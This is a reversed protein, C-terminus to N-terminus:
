PRHQRFLEWGEKVDAMNAATGNEVKSIAAVIPIMVEPNFTDIPEDKKVKAASAVVKIYVAPDNGGDGAPAYVNIMQEVTNLNRKVQYTYLLVFIARYGWAM